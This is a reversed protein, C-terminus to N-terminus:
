DQQPVPVRIIRDGLFSGIYVADGQKVAVTGAGMPPGELEIVQRTTESAPDIEVVAFRLHSPTGDREDSIAGMYSFFSDTHSAVWLKGDETWESNDPNEVEWRGLEAGTQIDHQRVEDGLYENFFYSKGDAAVAIGNPFRGKSNPLERFGAEHSWHYVHGSPRGFVLTLLLDFTGGDQDFMHTVVFDGNPLGAVDNFFGQPPAEACGRWVLRPPSDEGTEIVEFMEVSERENHNVVLLRYEGSDLQGLHIGHGLMEGPPQVCDADGWTPEIESTPAGAGFLPEVELTDTDLFHLGGPSAMQAFLLDRGNPTRVIDEPEALGCISTIGNVVDCNGAQVGGTLLVSLLAALSAAKFAPFKSM